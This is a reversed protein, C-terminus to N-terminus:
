VNNEMSLINLPYPHLQLMANHHLRDNAWSTKQDSVDAPSKCILVNNSLWHMWEVLSSSVTHQISRGISSSNKKNSANPSKWFLMLPDVSLNYWPISYIDETWDVSFSHIHTSYDMSLAFFPLPHFIFSMSTRVCERVFILLWSLRFFWVQTNPLMKSRCENQRDCENLEHM